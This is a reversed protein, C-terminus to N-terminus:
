HSMAFGIDLLGVVRQLSFLTKRSDNLLEDTKGEFTLSHTGGLRFTAQFIRTLM